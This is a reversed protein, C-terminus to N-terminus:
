ADLAFRVWSTAKGPPPAALEDSIFASRRPETVTDEVAEAGLSCDASALPSSRNM